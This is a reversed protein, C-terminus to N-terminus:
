KIYEFILLDDVTTKIVSGDKATLVALITLGDWDRTFVFRAELYNVSDAVIKPLSRFSLTQGNVKLEIM